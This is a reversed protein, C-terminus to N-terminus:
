ILAQYKLLYSHRYFWEALLRRNFNAGAQWSGAAFQDTEQM